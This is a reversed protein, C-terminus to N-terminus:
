RSAEIRSINTTDIEGMIKGVLQVQTLGKSERLAKINNGIKYLLEMRIKDIDKNSKIAM